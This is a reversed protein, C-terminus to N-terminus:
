VSTQFQLTRAEPMHEQAWHGYALFLPGTDVIANCNQQLSLHRGVALLVM